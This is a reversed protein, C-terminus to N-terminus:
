LPKVADVILSTMRTGMILWTLALYINSNSARLIFGDAPNWRVKHFHNGADYWELPRVMFGAQRLLQTLNQINYHVKHDPFNAGRVQMLKAQGKSQPRTWYHYKMDPTWADPVAIRWYGGPKLMLFINHAAQMAEHPQLHELVHESLVAGLSNPRFHQLWSATSRMDLASQEMSLWGPQTVGGAGIVVKTEPTM